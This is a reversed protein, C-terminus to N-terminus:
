SLLKELNLAQEAAFPNFRNDGSTLRKIARQIDTVVEAVPREKQFRPNSIIVKKTTKVSKKKYRSLNNLNKHGLTEAVELDSYDKNNANIRNTSWSHRLTYFGIKKVKEEDIGVARARRRIDLNIEQNNLKKDGRYATFIYVDNRPLKKFLQYVEDSLFVERKDGNKTERFIVYPEPAEKFDNWTLMAMETWRNGGNLGTLKYIVENRLNLFDKARSYDIKVEAIAVIEEDTLVEFEYEIEKMRGVTIYVGLEFCRNINKIMQIIKNITSPSTENRKLAFVWARINENTFELDLFHNKVKKFYSRHGSINHANARVDRDTVLYMEFQEWSVSDLKM